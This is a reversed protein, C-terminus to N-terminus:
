RQGFTPQSNISSTHRVSDVEDRRPLLRDKVTQDASMVLRTVTVPTQSRSNSSLHNDASPLSSNRLDASSAAPPDRSTQQYHAPLDSDSATPQTSASFGIVDTSGTKKVTEHLHREAQRISLFDEVDDAPGTTSLGLRSIMTAVGERIATDSVAEGGDTPPSAPSQVGIFRRSTAPDRPSVVTERPSALNQPSVAPQQPPKPTEPSGYFTDALRDAETKYRQAADVDSISECAEALSDLVQALLLFPANTFSHVNSQMVFHASVDTTATLYDVQCGSDSECRKSRPSDIDRM